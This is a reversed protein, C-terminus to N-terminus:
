LERLVDNETVYAAIDRISQDDLELNSLDVVLSGPNLGYDSSRCLRNKLIHFLLIIIFYNIDM